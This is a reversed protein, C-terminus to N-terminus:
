NVEVERKLMSGASICTQISEYILTSSCDDGTLCGALRTATEKGDEWAGQVYGFMERSNADGTFFVEKHKGIPQQLNWHHENLQGIPWNSYAGMFLPDLDWRPVLIDLPEPIDNGHIERLKVMAEAQVDEDSMRSIRHAEAGVHTNFYIHGDTSGNLFGAANLNQWVPWRGTVEPDAYFTFQEPGWFQRDFLLFTKQFFAM